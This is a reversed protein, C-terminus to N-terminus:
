GRSRRRELEDIREAYMEERTMYPPGGLALGRSMQAFADQRLRERETPDADHRIEDFTVRVGEPVGEPREALEVRGDKYIGEVILPAM